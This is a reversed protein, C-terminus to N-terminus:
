SNGYFCYDFTIDDQSYTESIHLPVFETNLKELEPIFTDCEFKKNIRTAIIMKCYDKFSGSISMDYLSSGGIVFIENVGQDASLEVLAQEFDSVVMVNEQPTSDEELSKRFDEPKTTLVVNLRNKLPRKSKPISEWTKRGMVVANLKDSIETKAQLKKRLPCNFLLSGSALESPTHSLSEKSSTVKAFHSLDAKLMPWPLDGAKGIGM